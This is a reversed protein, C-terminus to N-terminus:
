KIQSKREPVVSYQEGSTSAPFLYAPGSSSIHASPMVKNTKIKKSFGNISISSVNCESSCKGCLLTLGAKSCIRVDISSLFGLVRHVIFCSIASGHTVCSILEHLKLKLQITGHSGISDFGSFYKVPWIYELAVPSDVVDGVDSASSSSEIMSSSISSSSSYSSAHLM